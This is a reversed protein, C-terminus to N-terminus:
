VVLVVIEISERLDSGPYPLPGAAFMAAAEPTADARAIPRFRAGRKAKNM